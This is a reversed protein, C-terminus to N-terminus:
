LRFKIRLLDIFMNIPDYFLNVSSNKRDNWVIGEEIVKIKELKAFYLIEADICFRSVKCMEIINKLHKSNYIKFGCQTDNYKLGLIIFTM